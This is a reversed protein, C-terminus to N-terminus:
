YSSCFLLSLVGLILDTGDVDEIGSSDSVFINLNLSDYM